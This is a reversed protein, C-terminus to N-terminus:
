CSGLHLDDLQRESLAVLRLRQPTCGWCPLFFPRVSELRRSGQALDMSHTGAHPGSQSHLALPVGRLDQPGPLLLVPPRIRHRQVQVEAKEENAVTAKM